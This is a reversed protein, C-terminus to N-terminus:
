RDHGGSRHQTLEQATIDVHCDEKLWGIQEAIKATGRESARKLIARAEPSLACVPCDDKRKDLLYQELTRTPTVAPAMASAPAGGGAGLTAKIAAWEEHASDGLWDTLRRANVPLKLARV